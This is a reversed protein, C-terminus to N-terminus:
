GSFGFLTGYIIGIIFFVLILIGTIFSANKFAVSLNPHKEKRIFRASIDLAIISFLAFWFWFAPPM